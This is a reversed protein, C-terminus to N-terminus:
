LVPRRYDKVAAWLDEAKILALQDATKLEFWERSFLLRSSRFIVCLRQELNRAYEVYHSGVLELNWNQFEWQLRRLREQPKGTKTHGIKYYDTGVAHIIYLYGRSVDARRQELDSDNMSELKRNRRTSEHARNSRLRRRAQYDPYSHILQYVRQGSVHFVEGIARLSLDDQVAMRLM